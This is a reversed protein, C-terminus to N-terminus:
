EMATNRPEAIGRQTGKRIEVLLGLSTGLTRVHVAGPGQATRTRVSTGVFLARPFCCDKHTAFHDEVREGKVM